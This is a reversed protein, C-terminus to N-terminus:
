LEIDSEIFIDIDTIWLINIETESFDIALRRLLTSKGSGGSGHVVAAVKSQRSTSFSSIVESKIKDYDRRIVDWGKLIGFWQCNNSQKATYFDTFQFNISTVRKKFDGNILEAGKFHHKINNKASAQKESIFLGHIYDALSSIKKINKRQTDCNQKYLDCVFRTTLINESYALNVAEVLQLFNSENSNLNTEPHREDFFQKILGRINKLEEESYFKTKPPKSTNYIKQYSM